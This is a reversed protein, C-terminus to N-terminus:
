YEPRFIHVQSFHYDGLVFGIIENLGQLHQVFHVKDIEVPIFLWVFQRVGFFYALGILQAGFQVVNNCLALLFLTGTLSHLLWSSKKSFFSLKWRDIFIDLNVIIFM